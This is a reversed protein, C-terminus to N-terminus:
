LAKKGTFGPKNLLTFMNQKYLEVGPQDFPNVGLLYASLACSLEFFYVLYGLHFADLKELELVINPVGGNVHAMITAEMATYNIEKVTKNALYNLGDSNDIEQEIVINNDSNKFAIVTEFLMRKGDQIYQGLSHLDTSFIVSAPFIGKQNKGESEGFLQKWWESLYTMKPEYNVLLEVYYGKSYLVNRIAAYCIADSNPKRQEVLAKKSGAVVAKIDIGAVSIPLLGVPSLVSFRGGIDDRIVFSTYNHELAQAKLAGKSCDTTVYIRESAKDGYKSILLKKLFRFAIAPETTTGSKSIVNLSFDKKELYCGLEDLYESSMNHGAFVVETGEKNFTPLLAELFAKAGLYSGGIGVVVLVDSTTQIEKSVELIKPLEKEITQPLDLWGLYDKGLGERSQLLHLMENSRSIFTEQEVDCIFNKLHNTKIKIM